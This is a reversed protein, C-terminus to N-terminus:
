VSKEVGFRKLNEDITKVSCAWITKELQYDEASHTVFLLPPNGLDELAIRNGKSLSPRNSLKIEIALIVQFGKSVVVDIEAGQSTRYFSLSFGFRLNAAIQEIVFGEWSNGCLYHRLLAEESNILLLNHLIGSDRIYLKPRKVLRKGNNVYWPPLKRIMFSSEFFDFIKLITTNSRGLSNAIDSASLINGQLSALMRLTMDVIRTETALGFSPLDRTVYNFILDNLIISSEEQNQALYSRPYGGRFWLTNINQDSLESALFPTLELFSIRGTLSESANQILLPSGSGLIIFRGNRRDEDILSRLDNFVEPLYQIEDLIITKDAKSQLFFFRDTIFAQRDAYNELDFYLIQDSNSKRFEKVLTTKGVQRPGLIAVAPYLRLRENALKSIQRELM